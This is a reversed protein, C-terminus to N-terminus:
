GIQRSSVLAMRLVRFTKSNKDETNTEKMIHAMMDFFTTFDIM